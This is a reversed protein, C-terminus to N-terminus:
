CDGNRIRGFLDESLEEVKGSKETKYKHPEPAAPELTTGFHQSCANKASLFKDAKKVRANLFAIEKEEKAKKDANARIERAVAESESKINEANKEAEAVKKLIEEIM